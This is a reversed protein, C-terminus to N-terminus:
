EECRVGSVGVLAAIARKRPATRRTRESALSLPPPPVRATSVRPLPLRSVARFGKRTEPRGLFIHDFGFYTGNTKCWPGCPLRSTHRQSGPTEKQGKSRPPSQGSYLSLRMQPPGKQLSSQCASAPNRM